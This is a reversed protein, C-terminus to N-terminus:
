DQEVFEVDIIELEDFKYNDMDKYFERDAIPLKKLYKQLRSSLPRFTAYTVRGSTVAGIIPVAKSVGRAFVQKTM